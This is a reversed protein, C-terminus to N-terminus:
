VGAWLWLLRLRHDGPKEPDGGGCEGFPESSCWRRGMLYRGTRASMASSRGAWGSRHPLRVGPLGGGRLGHAGGALGPLAGPGRRGPAVVERLMAMPGCACVLEAPGELLRQELPGTVLGQRGLTGDDSVLRLDCGLQRFEQTLIAAGATRFGLIVTAAPGYHAALQLLPPVGIGGGVLVVRSQPSLLKFGNGLPGLLDVRDGEQLQSLKETGEGRVQFVLRILGEQPRIECISIPRRLTHGPVYLQAFQGPVALAALQPCEVVFDYVDATLRDARRLSGLVSDYRKM